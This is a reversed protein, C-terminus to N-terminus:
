ELESLLRAEIEEPTLGMVIVVFKDLPKGSAVALKETGLELIESLFTVLAKDILGRTPEVTLEILFAEESKGTVRNGDAKPTILVPVAAGGEADTIQFKRM